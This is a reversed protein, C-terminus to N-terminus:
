PDLSNAKLSVASSKFGEKAPTHDSTSSTRSNIMLIHKDATDKVGPNNSLYYNSAMNSDFNSGTHIVGATARRKDEQKTWGSPSTNLYTSASSNFNGNTVSVEKTYSSFYNTSSTDADASKVETTYAVTTAASLPLLLAFIFMIIKSKLQKLKKM